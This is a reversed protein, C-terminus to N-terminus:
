TETLFFILYGFAAKVNDNGGAGGGGGGKRVYTEMDKKVLVFSTHVSTPPVVRVRHLFPRQVKKSTRPQRALILVLDKRSEAIQENTRQSKPLSVKAHMKSGTNRTACLTDHPWRSDM